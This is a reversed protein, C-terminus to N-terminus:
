QVDGVLKTVKSVNNNNKTIKFEADAKIGTGVVDGVMIIQMKLKKSLGVVVDGLRERAIGRIHPFPEDLLLVKETGAITLCAVRLAFSIVDVIGGGNSDMPNFKNGDKELYIEVETKGRKQVFEFVFKYENPFVVDLCSQVIDVIRQQLQNQTNQALTQLKVQLENLANQTELLSNVKETLESKRKLAINNRMSLEMFRKKLLSDM